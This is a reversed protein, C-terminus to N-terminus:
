EDNSSSCIVPCSSPLTKLSAPPFPDAAALYLKEALRASAAYVNLHCLAKNATMAPGIKLQRPNLDERLQQAEDLAKKLLDRAEQETPALSHGPWGAILNLTTEEPSGWILWTISVGSHEMWPTIKRSPNGAQASIRRNAVEGYPTLELYAWENQSAAVEDAEAQLKMIRQVISDISQRTHHRKWWPHKILAAVQAAV